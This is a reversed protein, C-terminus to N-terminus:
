KLFKNTEFIAQVGIDSFATISQKHM